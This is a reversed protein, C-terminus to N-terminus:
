ILFNFFFHNVSKANKYCIHHSINFRKTAVVEYIRCFVNTMTHLSSVHAERLDFKNVKKFM